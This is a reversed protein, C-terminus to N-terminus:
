YLVFSIRCINHGPQLVPVIVNLEPALGEHTFIVQTKNDKESIEFILKTGTWENKKDLFSLNSDTILWAIKKNPTLEMLKQKSYHAGEGARFTFEDGLKETRGDIEESYYGSWWARVNLICKFVEEPTKDSLLTITFNGAAM